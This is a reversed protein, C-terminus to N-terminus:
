LMHFHALGALFGFDKQVAEMAQALRATSGSATAVRIHSVAM